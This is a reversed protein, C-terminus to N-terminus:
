GRSFDLCHMPEREIYNKLSKRTHIFVSGNEKLVFITTMCEDLIVTRKKQEGTRRSHSIHLFMAVQVM